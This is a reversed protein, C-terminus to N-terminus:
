KEEIIKSCNARFNESDFLSDTESFHKILVEILGEKDVVAKGVSLSFKMTNIRIAKSIEEYIKSM